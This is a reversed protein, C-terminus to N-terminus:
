LTRLQVPHYRCLVRAMPANPRSVTSRAPAMASSAHFLLRGSGGGRLRRAANLAPRPRAERQANLLPAAQEPAHDQRHLLGGVM